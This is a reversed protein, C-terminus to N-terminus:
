FRYAAGLQLSVASDSSDQYADIGLKADGYLVVNPRVATEVGVTLVPADQDGLLSADGDDLVFSYGGGVYLNTNPAVGVDYSIIPVIASSDGNFLFAGRLSLPLEIPDFRGQINGGVASGDEDTNTVGISVGGGLYSGDMGRVQASATEAFALVSFASIVSVISATAISRLSRKM